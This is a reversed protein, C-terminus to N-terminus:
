RTVETFEKLPIIFTGGTELYKQHKSIIIDTYRWAFVIIYDPNDEYIKDSSYIPIHHNPSYRGIKIKNDDLLYEIKDNLKFHYLLTTTTNSAGYAVVKKNNSLANDIFTVLQKKAKTIREEFEKYINLSYLERKREISKLHILQETQKINNNNHTVFFRLSGGKTDVIQADFMKLGNANFLYELPKISFYSLHEHYITDFVMSDILSLLYSTESIFIGECDLVKKLGKVFNNLDDINAILNNCTIIRAKGYKEVLEDAVQANFFIPLTEVGNATAEKAVERAPDIGLVKMGLKQYGKLLSGDNSGIDLILSRDEINYKEVITRAAKIFHEPLGVSTNTRYLYDIYIDEPEIVDILQVLGCEQCKYVDMSYIEQKLNLQEKTVFSDALPSAELPLVIEIDKSSCIRCTSNRYHGM